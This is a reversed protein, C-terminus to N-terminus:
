SKKKKKEKQEVLFHYRDFEEYRCELINLTM